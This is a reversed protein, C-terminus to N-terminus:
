IVRGESNYVEHLKNLILEKTVEENYRIRLLSVSENNQIYEIKLNDRYKQKKFDESSSHFHDNYNYHQAGQVEIFLGMERIYFDFYLRVGKYNIYKEEIITLHPFLEKITDYVLKAIASM